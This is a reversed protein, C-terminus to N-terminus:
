PELICDQFGTCMGKETAAFLTCFFYYCVYAPCTSNNCGSNFLSFMNGMIKENYKTTFEDEFIFFGAEPVTQVNLLYRIIRCQKYM